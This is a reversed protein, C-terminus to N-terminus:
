FNKAKFRNRQDIIDLYLSMKATKEGETKIKNWVM